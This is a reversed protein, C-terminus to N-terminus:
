TLRLFSVLDAAIRDAEEAAEPEVMLPDEDHALPRHLDVYVKLKPETGSPRVLARTGGLDFVVLDASPLWRPRGEAGLRFDTVELVRRGGLTAPTAEALSAMAAAIEGVGETGPRVIARQTSVWLGHRRYLTSLRDWVSEGERRATAALIAFWTAASMGDKDRVVTGISYGLAEEYGFVFMVGEDRELDLAANCIWKFGTLTQAFRADHSAAVEALMPSSVISNVVLPATAASHTLVFDALLVGIQNGTLTRWGGDVPLSVALRDADPDNALVIDARTETALGHALDLAGPEEPNPFAVTPFRGDPDGQEPVVHVDGFGAETLLRVCIDRGVGHLPTYVIRVSRDGGDPLLNLVDGVYRDVAEPGLRRVLADASPEAVRAVDIAAGVIDIAAAIAADVPPVIQAGNRDYVKYGNDRPPNHSATVVVTADANMSVGAHAVLPTPVPEDFAAVEIGAAAMVGAADSAFVSSSPRADHGLAVRRGATGRQNLYAALGASTRIVVARNMRNSGAEVVGRIGATGFRLTGAMREALGSLGGAALIALLESRTAPDPDAEIWARTRRVLDAVAVLGNETGLHSVTVDHPELPLGSSVVVAAPAVGITAADPRLLPLLRDFYATGRGLRGGFLDFALGPVLAVDVEAPDVVDATAVPQLFGYPHQELPSDFPHITLAGDDPTRTLFAHSDNALPTLDPEDPLPHFLLLRTTPDAMGSARLAGVMATAAAALDVGASAGRAWDRWEGKSAGPAPQDGM